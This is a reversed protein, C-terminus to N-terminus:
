TRSTITRTSRFAGPSPTGPIRRWSPCWCSAPSPRAERPTPM